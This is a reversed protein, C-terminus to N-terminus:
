TNKGKEEFFLIWFSFSAVLLKTPFLIVYFFVFAAKFFLLLQVSLYIFYWYLFYSYKFFSVHWWFIPPFNEDVKIIIMIFILLFHLALLNYFKQAVIILLWWFQFCFSPNLHSIFRTFSTIWTTFDIELNRHLSFNKHTCHHKYAQSPFYLLLHLLLLHLMLPFLCFFFFLTVNLPQAGNLAKTLLILLISNSLAFSRPLHQSASTYDLLPCCYNHSFM